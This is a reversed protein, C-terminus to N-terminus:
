SFYKIGKEIADEKIILDGYEILKKEFTKSLTASKSFESLLSYFLIKRENSININKVLLFYTNKYYYLSINNSFSNIDFNNIKSMCNCFECFEEFKSFSYIYNTESVVPCKRKVIPRKKELTSYKTITFVIIDENSSFTEILLKYGDTEFGVEKKAKELLNIFFTQKELATSTLSNISINGQEFDSLDVVVRIKNNTLKEIKM